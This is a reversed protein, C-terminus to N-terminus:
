KSLPKNALKGISDTSFYILLFTFKFTSVKRNEINRLIIISINFFNLRFVIVMSCLRIFSDFLKHRFLKNYTNYVFIWKFTLTSKVKLKTQNYSLKIKSKSFNYYCVVYRRKGWRRQFMFTCSKEEDIYAGNLTLSPPKFNFHSFLKKKASM